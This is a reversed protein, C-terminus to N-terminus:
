VYSEEGYSDTSESRQRTQQQQQHAPPSRYPPPISSGSSVSSNGNFLARLQSVSWSIEARRLAQSTASSQSQPQPQPTNPFDPKEEEVDEDDTGDESSVKDLPPLSHSRHLGLGDRGTSSDKTRPRSRETEVAVERRRNNVGRTNKEYRGVTLKPPPAEDASSASPTLSPQPSLSTQTEIECFQAWHGSTQIEQDVRRDSQDSLEAEQDDEKASTWEEVRGANNEMATRLNHTSFAFSRHLPTYSNEISVVSVNNGRNREKRPLSPPQTPSSSGSGDLSSLISADMHITVPRTRSSSPSQVSNNIRMRVPNHSRLHIKQKPPLPPIPDSKPPLPPPTHGEADWGSEDPQQSNLRIPSARVQILSNNNSKEKWTTWNTGGTVPTGQHRQRRSMMAEEYSPIDPTGSLSGSGNSHISYLSTDQQERSRRGGNSAYIVTDYDAYRSSGTPPTAVYHSSRSASGSSPACSVVPRREAQRSRHEHHPTSTTAMRSSSSSSSGTNTRSSHKTSPTGNSNPYVISGTGDQSVIIHIPAPVPVTLAGYTSEWASNVARYDKSGRSNSRSVHPTSDDDSLTSSDYSRDATSAQEEATIHPTSHSPRISGSSYNPSKHGNVRRDPEDVCFRLGEMDLNADSKSRRSLEMCDMTMRTGVPPAPARGKRHAAPKKYNQHYHIESSQNVNALSEDSASRRLMMGSMPPSDFKVGGSQKRNHSKRRFWDQRQFHSGGSQYEEGLVVTPTAKPVAYVADDSMKRYIADPRSHDYVPTYSSPGGNLKGYSDLLRVSGNAIGNKESGRISPVSYMSRTQDARSSVITASATTSRSRLQVGGNRSKDRDSGRGSSSSESGEEMDEDPTYLQTDSLTLGSDRSLNTVSMKDRRLHISHVHHHDHELGDGLLERELSDISSDDRRMVDSHYLSHLSDSEENGSDHQMLGQRAMHKQVPAQRSRSHGNTTVGNTNCSVRRSSNQAEPASTAAPAKDNLLNATEAGFLISCKDILVAVLAPVQKSATAEASLALAPNLAAAAATANAAAVPAWLLSPGVCVALNSASMMNHSSNAVIHLLVCLFHRLLTVNASPLRDCLGKIKELASDQGDMAAVQLWQDYMGSCLLSDPLSRLFDKFVVATVVANIGNWDMRSGNADIRERIERVQRANASKRFIGVTHPGKARLELLMDMIPQPLQDPQPFIKNLPQGFFAGAKAAALLTPSTPNGAGVTELSDPKSQVRRFVKQIRTPSKKTKAAGGAGNAGKTAVVQKANGLVSGNFSPKQVSLIFQCRAAPDANYINNCHDLMDIPTTLGNGNSEFHISNDNDVAARGIYDRLCNMKIAFPLEHGILPYPSSDSDISTSTLTSASGGTKLWLRFSNIDATGSMELHSLALKIVDRVTETPSVSLTKTYGIAQVADHYTIQITTTKPEKDREDKVAQGLRNWWLDRLAASSFTAVLNVSPPWGIVFSTDRSKGASGEAVEEIGTSLWLESIRVKDKLKFHGGSRAKAILLLDNFLFLHRDRSQLGNIFQVSTEMIFQRKEKDNPTKNNPTTMLSTSNSPSSHVAPSDAGMESGGPSSSSGSPTVSVVAAPNSAATRLSKASFARQLRAATTSRKRILGKMKLSLADKDHLYLQDNPFLNQVRDLQNIEEECRKVLEQAKDRAKHVDDLDPHDAGTECLLDQFYREYSALRQIPLDLLSDITHLAAGQRLKCIEIFEEDRCQKERLLEKAQTFFRFYEDFQNWFQKSFLSGIKTEHPDWAALADELKTLLMNSVSLIPEIGGFLQKQEEDSISCLKRLPRAYIDYITRLSVLFERESDVLDETLRFRADTEGREDRVRTADELLVTDGDLLSIEAAPSVVALTDSMRLRFECIHLELAVSQVGQRVSCKGACTITREIGNPLIIHLTVPRSRRLQQPWWQGNNTAVGAGGSASFDAVDVDTRFKSQIFTPVKAVSMSLRRSIRRGLNRPAETVMASLVHYERM